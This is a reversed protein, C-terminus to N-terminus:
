VDEHKNTINYPCIYPSIDTLSFIHGTILFNLDKKGDLSCSNTIFHESGHKEMSALLLLDFVPEQSNSRSSNNVRCELLIYLIRLM